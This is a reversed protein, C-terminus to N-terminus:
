DLLISSSLIFLDIVSHSPSSDFLLHHDIALLFDALGNHASFSDRWNRCEVDVCLGHPLSSSLSSSVGTSQSAFSPPIIPTTDTIGINPQIPRDRNTINPQFQSRADPTMHDVIDTHGREHAGYRSWWKTTDQTIYYIYYVIAFSQHPQDSLPPNPWTSHPFLSNSQAKARQM